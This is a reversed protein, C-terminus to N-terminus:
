KQKLEEPVTADYRFKGILGRRNCGKCSRQIHMVGKCWPCLAYPITAKLMSCIQDLMNKIMQVDCEAYLADDDAKKLRLMVEDIMRIIDRVEGGRDFLGTIHDPIVNGLKDEVPKHGREEGKASVPQIKREKGDVGIRKREVQVNQAPQKKQVQVNQAPQNSKELWDQHELEHRIELVTNRHVGVHEAIAADSLNPKTRIAMAVAKRKDANTRRLGHAKNAGAAHWMADDRTGKIYKVKITLKKASFHAHLRHFGDALHCTSEETDDRFVVIPPLEVGGSILEALENIYDQDLSARSQLGNVDISTIPVVASRM